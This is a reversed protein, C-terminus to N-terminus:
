LAQFFNNVRKNIVFDCRGKAYASGKKGVVKLELVVGREKELLFDGVLVLM